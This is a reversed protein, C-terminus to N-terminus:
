KLGGGHNRPMVPAVSWETGTGPGQARTLPDHVHTRGSASKKCPSASVSFSPAPYAQAQEGDDLVSRVHSFGVVAPPVVFSCPMPDHTRIEDVAERIALRAHGSFVEPSGEVTLAVFRQQGDRVVASYPAIGTAPCRSAWSPLASSPEAGVNQRQPQTFPLM